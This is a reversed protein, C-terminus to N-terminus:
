RRAELGKISPRRTALGGLLILAVSEGENEIWSQIDEMRLIGEGGRSRLEVLASRPDYGHYQLQSEVAYRDSPFTNEEIVIRHRTPTPRYFSVMMLHLNVTLSNMVVVEHPLAGVLAATQATLFENYPVWPHLAHEHGRVGLAKWDNLEQEIYSRASVPQLGLSNGSLYTCASGDPLAPLHFMKRYPACPDEADRLLAHAESNEYGRNM